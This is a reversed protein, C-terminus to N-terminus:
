RCSQPSCADNSSTCAWSVKGGGTSPTLTFVPSVGPCGTNRTTVTIVGAAGVAISTVFRSTAPNYGALAASTPFRQSPDALTSEAVALKAPAAMNLGESARARALYDQYAPIAIALLIGLIAIVIMLEILTFGQMKKMNNM